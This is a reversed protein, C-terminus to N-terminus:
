FPIIEHQIYITGKFLGILADGPKATVALLISVECACTSQQVIKFGLIHNEGLLEHCTDIASAVIRLADCDLLTKALGKIIEGLIRLSPDLHPYKRVALRPAGFERIQVRAAFTFNLNEIAQVPNGFVVPNTNSVNFLM